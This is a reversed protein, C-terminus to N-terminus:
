LTVVQVGDDPKFISAGTPDDVLLTFPEDVDLMRTLQDVTDTIAVVTDSSVGSTQGRLHSSLNWIANSIHNYLTDIRRKNDVGIEFEIAPLRICAEPSKILVRWLDKRSEVELTFLTPAADPDPLLVKFESVGKTNHRVDIHPLARLFGEFSGGVADEFEDYDEYWDQVNVIMLGIPEVQLWENPQTQYIQEVEDVIRDIEQHGSSLLAAFSSSAEDVDTMQLLVCPFSQPNGCPSRWIGKIGM